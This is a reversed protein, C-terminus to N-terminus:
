TNNGGRIQRVEIGARNVQEEERYKRRRDALASLESNPNKELEVELMADQRTVPWDPRDGFWWQVLGRYYDGMLVYNMMSITPELTDAVVLPRAKPDVLCVRTIATPPVTGQYCVNGLGNLSNLWLPHWKWLNKRIYAHREKSMPTRRQRSDLQAVFDEDPLFQREVLDRVDVEVVALREGEVWVHDAFYFPYAITLYV